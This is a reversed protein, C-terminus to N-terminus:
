VRADGEGVPWGDPRFGALYAGMLTAAKGPVPAASALEPARVWRQLTSLSVGWLPAAQTQTLHLAALGSRFTAPTM